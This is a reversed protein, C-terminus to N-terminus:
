GAGGVRLAALFLTSLYLLCMGGVLTAELIQSTTLGRAARDRDLRARELAAHCRARVRSARADNPAAAPLQALAGLLPDHAHDPTM